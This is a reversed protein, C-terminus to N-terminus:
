LLQGTPDFLVSLKSTDDLLLQNQKDECLM